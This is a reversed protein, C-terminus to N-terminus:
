LQPLHLLISLIIMVILLLKPKPIKDKLEAIKNTLNNIKTERKEELNEKLSIKEILTLIIPIKKMKIQVKKNKLNKM